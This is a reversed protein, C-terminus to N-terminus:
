FIYRQVCFFNGFSFESNFIGNFFYIGLFKWGYSEGDIMFHVPFSSLGTLPLLFSTISSSENIRVDSLHFFSLIYISLFYKLFTIATM